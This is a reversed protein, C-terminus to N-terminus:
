DQKELRAYETILTYISTSEITHEAFVECDTTKITHQVVPRIYKGDIDKELVLFRPRYQSEILKTVLVCNYLEGRKKAYWLKSKQSRLTIEVTYIKVPNEM